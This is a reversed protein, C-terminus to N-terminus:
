WSASSFTKNEVTCQSSVHINCFGSLIVQQEVDINDIWPENHMIFSLNSAISQEFWRLYPLFVIKGLHDDCTKVADISSLYSLSEEWHRVNTEWGKLQSLYVYTHGFKRIKECLKHYIRLADQMIVPMKQFLNCEQLSTLKAECGPLDYSSSLVTSYGFIWPEMNIARELEQLVELFCEDFISCVRRPLLRHAFSTFKPVLFAKGTAPFIFTFHFCFIIYLANSCTNISM